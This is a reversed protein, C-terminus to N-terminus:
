ASKMEGRRRWWWAGGSLLLVLMVGTIIKLQFKGRPAQPAHITHQYDGQLTFAAWFYPSHWLPQQRITNQAERLAASPPMGRQLMNAYFHKMLEATAEDDVKWLSAVVSSAGAYMFGRTLGILGEGRVDKGLGTRCASLVVLDVPARLDYIERLGVFGEQPQGERNVTSLILGSNEPRVPDLFGHTAFHLIAFGTFDTTRLRERSAEFETAVFSGTDSVLNRLNALEYRAYFLRQMLAPNFSDGAVEIDRLSHDLRRDDSPRLQAIQQSNNSDNAQAYDSAFKPDGFAALLKDPPRRRATEQSMQGLISASPANVIEYSAVMPEDQDARPHLIQFPIYNLAEDAVVIVRRQQLESAVPALIMESLKSVSASLENQTDAGPPTTLFKYVEGAAGNITAAAPLEHSSISNRTVIWAYSHEEGLSYELLATQDDVFVQQQLKALDWSQPRNMQDYAPFRARITETVAKYEGDLRALEVDLKTLEEPEHHRALMSVKEDEKVQLAQRTSKERQALQPDVGPALTTQMARLLEALSRARAQESAQFARVEWGQGPHAQHQRMLCEIYSQYREHIAASFAVMLDSSTSGRRINETVDISQRLYDEAADLANTRLELKGLAFLIASENVRDTLGRFATLAKQYTNRARGIDKQQQYVEGILALTRSREMTNGAKSFGDFAAQLRSLAQPYNNLALYTRGLFDDCFAMLTTDKSSAAENRATQLSDLAEQFKGLFYQARGISWGMAMVARQNKTLQFYELAERYKGLAVEPMGSELFAEALGGTIQGMKYPEAQPDIMSEAEAHFALANQWAGKRFEIYGFYILVSAQENVEDLERYLSLAADLASTSETLNNQTLHDHGIVVYAEAMGRKRGISQWLNLSELATQLALAHDSHNQCDSLTLLAEAQGAVYGNERSLVIAEDVHPTALDCKSLYDFSSALGNLSDIRTKVDPQHQLLELGRQFTKVAEEPVYMRIQFRGVRNLTRVAEIWEGSSQLEDVRALLNSVTRQREAVSRIRCDEEIITADDAPRAQAMACSVFSLTLVFLLLRRIIM